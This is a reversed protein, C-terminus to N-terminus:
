ISTLMKGAVNENLKVGWLAHKFSRKCTGGSLLSSTEITARKMSRFVNGDRRRSIFGAKRM